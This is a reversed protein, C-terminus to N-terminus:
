TSINIIGSSMWLAHNHWPHVYFEYLLYTALQQGKHYFMYSRNNKLFITIILTLLNNNKLLINPSSEHVDLSM